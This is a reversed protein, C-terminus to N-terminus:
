KGRIGPRHVKRQSRKQQRESKKEGRNQKFSPTKQTSAQSIVYVAKPAPEIPKPTKDKEGCAYSGGVLLFFSFLPVM